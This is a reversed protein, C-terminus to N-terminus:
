VLNMRKNLVKCAREAEEETLYTHWAVNKWKNVSMYMRKPDKSIGRYQMGLDYCREPVYYNGIVKNWLKKIREIM